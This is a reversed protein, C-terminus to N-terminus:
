DPDNPNTSGQKADRGRKRSGKPKGDPDDHRTGHV